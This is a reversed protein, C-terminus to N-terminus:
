LHLDKGAAKPWSGEMLGWEEGPDCGDGCTFSKPEVVVIGDGRIRFRAGAWGVMLRLADYFSIDEATVRPLAPYTEDKEAPRVAFLIVEGSGDFPVSASQLFLVADMLTAPPRFKVSALRIEKMRKCVDFDPVPKGFPSLHPPVYTTYREEVKRADTLDGLEDWSIPREDRTPMRETRAPREEPRLDCEDLQEYTCGVLMAAVGLVMMTRKMKAEREIKKTM